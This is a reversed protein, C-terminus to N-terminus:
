KIECIGQLEIQSYNLEVNKVSNQVKKISLDV